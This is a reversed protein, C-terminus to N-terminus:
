LGDDAPAPVVKYTTLSAGKGTHDCIKRGRGRVYGIINKKPNRKALDYREKVAHDLLRDIEGSGIKLLNAHNAIGANGPAVTLSDLQPSNHLAWALAHERGGSGILLVKM